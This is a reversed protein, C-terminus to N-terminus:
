FKHIVFLKGLSSYGLQLCAVGADRDDWIDDCVTGWTENRCVEVRGEYSTNGNQLRIDGDQCLGADFHLIMNHSYKPIGVTKIFYYNM